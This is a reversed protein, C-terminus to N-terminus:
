VTNAIGVSIGDCAAAATDITDGDRRTGTLCFFISVGCYM